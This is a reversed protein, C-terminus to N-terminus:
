AAYRRGIFYGIMVAATDAAANPYSDHKADPFFYPFRDKLPNEVVEWAVALLLATWWPMRTVGYLVGVSAHGTTWRDIIPQEGASYRRSRAASM